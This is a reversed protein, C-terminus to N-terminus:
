MSGNAQRYNSHCKGVTMVFPLLHWTPGLHQRILQQQSDMINSSITYVQMLTGTASQMVRLRYPAVPLQAALMHDEYSGMLGKVARCVYTEPVKLAFCLHAPLGLVLPPIAM